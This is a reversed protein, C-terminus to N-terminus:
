FSGPNLLSKLLREEIASKGTLGRTAFTTPQANRDVCVATRERGLQAVLQETPYLSGSQNVKASYYVSLAERSGRGWQGDVKLRYCGLRSLETQAMRALASLQRDPNRADVVTPVLALLSLVFATKVAFNTKPSTKHAGTM